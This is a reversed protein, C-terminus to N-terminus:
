DCFTNIESHYYDTYEGREADNLFVRNGKDSLYYIPAHTELEHLQHQADLCRQLRGAQRTQQSEKQLRKQERVALRRDQDRKFRAKLMILKEQSKQVENEDATAALALEESKQKESPMRDSYHINGADDVWKYVPQAAATSACCACVLLIRFIM